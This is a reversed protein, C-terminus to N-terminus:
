ELLTIGTLVYSQHFLYRGIFVADRKFVDSIDGLLRMEFESGDLNVLVEADHFGIWKKTILYQCKYFCEKASFIMAALRGQSDLPQAEIWSQENATCVLHWCDRKLRGICEMDLGINMVKNKYAVAVGCLGRTHSISGIINPPWIPLRDKGMIIPFNFIGLKALAQRACLRGAIFERRRKAIASSILVEEEPYPIGSITDMDTLVTTVDEPFLPRLIKNWQEDVLDPKHQDLNEPYDM